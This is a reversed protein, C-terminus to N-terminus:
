VFLFAVSDEFPISTCSVLEMGNDEFFLVEAINVYGYCNCCLFSLFRYGNSRFCWAHIISGADISLRKGEAIAGVVFDSWREWVQCFCLLLGILAVLKVVKVVELYEDIGFGLVMGHIILYLSKPLPIECCCCFEETTGVIDSIAAVTDM